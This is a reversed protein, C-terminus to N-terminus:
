TMPTCLAAPQTKLSFVINCTVEPLVGIIVLTFGFGTVPDALGWGIVMLPEPNVQGTVTLTDYVFGEGVVSVNGTVSTLQKLAVRTTIVMRVSTTCSLQVTCTILEPPCDDFMQGKVTFEGAVGVAM